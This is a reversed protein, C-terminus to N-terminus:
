EFHRRPMNACAQQIRSQNQIQHEIVRPSVSFKGAIEDFDHVEQAVELVSDLPALFEAAFSRSMAQREAGHLGNVVSTGGDPFCVIDGIARAFNFRESWSNPYSSPRLHVYVHDKRSVVADVSYLDRSSTFNKNGLSGAISTVSGLEEDPGVAVARRFARAMRYAPGWAGEGFRWNRLGVDVENVADSLDPLQFLKDSRQVASTVADLALKRRRQDLPRVGALFDDLSDDAFVDGSRMVLDEDADNICYPDAGLAGAAECFAKEEPDQRSAAVREWRLQVDTGRIGASSLQGVVSEVFGALEAEAESRPVMESGAQWFRLGPNDCHMQEGSVEFTSGDCTLSLCPLIFGNRYPWIQRKVDRGGFITWWDTAIGEALHVAPVTVFESSSGSRDDWYSCANVEGVMIRLRCMTAREVESANRAGHVWEALFKM